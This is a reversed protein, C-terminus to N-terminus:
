DGQQLSLMIAVFQELTLLDKQKDKPYESHIAKPVVLKIGSREMEELQNASIGQQLTLIHKVLIRSAENLVQRWRDKCTTKIGLMRLKEAPFTEDEYAEKSPFLMDPKKGKEIKKQTQFKLGADELLKRAHHELSHGARSKRRNMISSATKIFDDVSKFVRVVSDNLVLREVMKFLTFEASILQLLKDDLSKRKFTPDCESVTKFTFDSMEASSPFEEANAAAFKRFREEVTDVPQAAPFPISLSPAPILTDPANRGAADYLGWSKVIDVGLVGEVEQIDEDRDLVHAIMKGPGSPILVLLSGINDYTLWPFDRGFCTLRYESRTGKGYWTIVSQTVLGDPWTIEVDEKNNDGKTPPFSTYVDWLKKPLYFGCQHSGTYGVDNPSIFKLIATGHHQADEIARQALYTAM